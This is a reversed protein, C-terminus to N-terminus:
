TAQAFASLYKNPSHLILWSGQNFISSKLLNTLYIDSSSTDIWWFKTNSIFYSICSNYLRFYAHIWLLKGKAVTGVQICLLIKPILKM